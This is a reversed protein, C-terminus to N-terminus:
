YYLIERSTFLVSAGVENARIHSTTSTFHYNPGYFFTHKVINGWLKYKFKWLARASTLAEKGKWPFEQIKVSGNAVQLIYIPNEAWPSAPQPRFM